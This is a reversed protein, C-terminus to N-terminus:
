PCVFSADCVAQVDVCVDCTCVGPTNAAVVAAAAVDDVDVGADLCSAACDAGAPSDCPHLRCLEACPEACGQDLRAATLLAVCDAAERAADGDGNQGANDAFAAEVVAQQEFLADCDDAPAPCAVLPAASRGCAVLALLLAAGLGATPRGVSRVVLLSSVSPRTM